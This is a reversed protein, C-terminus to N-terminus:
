RPREREGASRVVARYAAHLSRTMPGARGDGIPVGDIRVVPVLERLSSTLFAEDAGEFDRAFLLRERVPVGLARASELVLARTIGPLAGTSLPPTVLAGGRVAFLNSSHGESISGDDSVFAAEYAGREQAELLALLNSVYASTKAGQASTGDTPRHARVTAIAVGEYLEAPLPLLASALVVRTTPGRARRPDLHLAGSGRTVVIRVYADTADGATARHEAIALLIDDRLATRGFSPAIRLGALSRELRDLHEDLAFPVGDYTRLVEFVSDGFLFGRDLVSIRAEDLSVRVGDLVVTTV